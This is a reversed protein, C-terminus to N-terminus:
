QLARTLAALNKEMITLYAAGQEADRLSVSQMSDLVLIEPAAGSVCGAVTGALRGDSDELQLLVPLALEEAKETLFLVTAFSAESDGSCGSFAAYYRLGYDEVLYRFPFRDCFLLTDRSGAAVAATFSADLGTLAADYSELNRSIQEAYEPMQESFLAAMAECCGAANRLSLWIHEDYEPEDSEGGGRTQMGEVTEEEHLTEGLADMLALERRDSNPVSELVDTVWEDSEGGIYLFIDCGSIRLLDAATVQYSHLDVGKDSLLLVEAEPCDRLLNVAWDYVPFITAIVTYKASREPAAQGCGTLLLAAALLLAAFLRLKKM